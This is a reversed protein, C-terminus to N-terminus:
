DRIRLKGPETPDIGHRPPDILDRRPLADRL